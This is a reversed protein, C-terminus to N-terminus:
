GQCTTNPKKTKMLGERGGCSPPTEAEERSQGNVDNYTFHKGGTGFSPGANGRGDPLGTAWFEREQDVTRPSKKIM